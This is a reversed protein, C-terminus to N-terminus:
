HWTNAAKYLGMGGQMRGRVQNPNQEYYRQHYGEAQTRVGVRQCLQRSVGVCALRFFGAVWSLQNNLGGTSVQYTPTYKFLLHTSSLYTHVQYTPTYMTPARGLPTVAARSLHRGPAQYLLAGPVDVASSIRNHTGVHQGDAATGTHM